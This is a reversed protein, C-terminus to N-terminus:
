GRTQSMIFTTNGKLKKAYLSEIEAREAMMASLEDCLKAGDDIKKVIKKYNGELWFSGTDMQTATTATSGGPPTNNNTPQIYDPPPTNRPIDKDSSTTDNGEENRQTSEPADAQDKPCISESQLPTSAEGAAQNPGDGSRGEPQNLSGSSVDYDKIELKEPGHVHQTENSIDEM